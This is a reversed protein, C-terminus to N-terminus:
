EYGDKEGSMEITNCAIIACHLFFFLFSATGAEKGTM